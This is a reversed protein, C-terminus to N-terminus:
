YANEASLLSFPTRALIYLDFILSWNEIYYLDHELRKHLKEVTDTNGRWGNVQAWGTIGPKVRTRAFYEEIIESYEADNVNANTAHPRPGVMSLEGKLVNFLQPLEDLSTKRIFRGVKTVRPDDRVTLRKATHDAQDTFMSRFKYVEILENNFGYRKQRFLAPGRSDLKVAAWVAAMVPALVIILLAAIAKDAVSKVLADWGAIPKDFLDIFPIEGIRSYIRPQYRLKQTHASLRIEVPLVWLKRLLRLLRKEATVPFTVLLLDVRVSRAFAILEDITGIRPCGEILLPSRDDTRDDFIGVITLDSNRAQGLARILDGAPKGGGVLVARRNFRGSRNWYRCLLAFLWRGLLSALTGVLSWEVLWGLVADTEELHLLVFLCVVAVASSWAILVRMIQDTPFLLAHLTYAGSVHQLMLISAATALILPLYLGISVSGALSFSAVLLGTAIVLLAEGARASGSIIHLSIHPSKGGDARAFGAAFTHRLAGPATHLEKLREVCMAPPRFNFM